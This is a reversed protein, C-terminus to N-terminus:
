MRGYQQLSKVADAIKKKMRPEPGVAAHLEVEVEYQSLGNAWSGGTFTDIGRASHRRSRVFTEGNPDIPLEFGDVDDVQEGLQENKAANGLM